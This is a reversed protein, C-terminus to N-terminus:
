DEPVLFFLDVTFQLADLELSLLYESLFGHLSLLLDPHALVVLLELLAECLMLLHLVLLQLRLHLHSLSLLPVSHLPLPLPPHLHFLLFLVNLLVPLHFSLCIHNQVLAAACM